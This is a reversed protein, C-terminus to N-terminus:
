EGTGLGTGACTGAERGAGLLLTRVEGGPRHAGHASPSPVPCLLPFLYLTLFM